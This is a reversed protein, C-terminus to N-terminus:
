DGKVCSFGSIAGGLGAAYDAFVYCINGNEPDIFRIVEYTGYEYPIHMEVVQSPSLSVHILDNQKKIIVPNWEQTVTDEGVCGVLFLCVMIILLAKKM